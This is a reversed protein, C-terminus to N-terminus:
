TACTGGPHAEAAEGRCVSALSFVRVCGHECAHECVRKCMSVFM